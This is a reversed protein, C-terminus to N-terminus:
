LSLWYNLKVVFVHNGPAGFATGLDRAASFMEERSEDSTAM